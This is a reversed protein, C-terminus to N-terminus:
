LRPMCDRVRPYERDHGFHPPEALFPCKLGEPINFPLLKVVSVSCIIGTKKTLMEEPLAQQEGM